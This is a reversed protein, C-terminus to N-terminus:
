YKITAVVCVLLAKDTNITAEVNLTRIIRLYYNRSDAVANVKVSTTVTVNIEVCTIASNTCVAAL